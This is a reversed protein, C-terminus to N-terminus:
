KKAEKLLEGRVFTANPNSMKGHHSTSRRFDETSWDERGKLKLRNAEAALEEHTMREIQLHRLNNPNFEDAHEGFIYSARREPASARPRAKPAAEVPKAKPAKVKAIGKEGSVREVPSPASPEPAPAPAPAPAPTPAPPAEASPPAKVPKIRTPLKSARGEKIAIAYPDVPKPPKPPKPEPKVRVSIPAAKGERIAVDYPTPSRVPIKAARGEKIAIELPSLEPKVRVPIKAARGEKIAAELPTPEPKIRVPIRAARGAKIAEETPKQLHEPKLGEVEYEKAAIAEPSAIKERLMDVNRYPSAQNLQAETPSAPLPAGPYVPETVPATARWAESIKGPTVRRFIPIDKVVDKGLTYGARLMRGAPVESIAATLAQAAGAGARGQEAKLFTGVPDPSSAAELIELPESIGAEGIGRLTRYGLLGAPGLIMSAAEGTTQPPKLMDVTGRYMDRFGRGISQLGSLAANGYSTLPIERDLLGPQPKPQAAAAGDGPLRTQPDGIVAGAPLPDGIKANKPLPEGPM